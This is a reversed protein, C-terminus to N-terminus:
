NYFDIVPAIQNSAQMKLSRGAINQAEINAGIYTDSGGFYITLHSNEYEKITAEVEGTYGRGNTCDEEIYGSEMFEVTFSNCNEDCSKVLEDIYRIIEERAEQPVYAIFAEESEVFINHKRCYNEYKNVGEKSDAENFGYEYVEIVKGSEDKGININDYSVWNLNPNYLCVSSEKSVINVNLIDGEIGEMEYFRISSSVGERPYICYLGSLETETIYDGEFSRISGLVMGDNKYSYEDIFVTVNSRRDSRNVSFYVKSEKGMFSFEKTGSNEFTCVYDKGKVTEEGSEFSEGTIDKIAEENNSGDLAVEGVTIEDFDLQMSTCIEANYDLFRASISEARDKDNKYTVFYTGESEIYFGNKDAWAKLDSRSIPYTLEMGSLSITEKAFAVEVRNPMMIKGIGKKLQEQIYEPYVYVEDKSETIIDEVKSTENIADNDGSKQNSENEVGCACLSVMAVVAVVATVTKVTFKKM